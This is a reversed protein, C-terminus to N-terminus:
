RRRRARRYTGFHQTASGSFRGGALDFPRGHIGYTGAGPDVWEFFMLFQGRHRAIWVLTVSNLSFGVHPMEGDAKSVWGTIGKAASCVNIALDVRRGRRQMRDLKRSHAFGHASQTVPQVAQGGHLVTEDWIHYYTTGNSWQGRWWDTWPRFVELPDGRFPLSAAIADRVATEQFGGTGPFTKFFSALASAQRAFDARWAAFDFGDHRTIVERFDDIDLDM